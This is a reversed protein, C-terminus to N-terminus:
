LCFRQLCKTGIVKSDDKSTENVNLEAKSLKDDDEQEIACTSLGADSEHLIKNSTESEVSSNIDSSNNDDGSYTSDGNQKEAGSNTETLSDNNQGLKELTEKQGSQDDSALSNESLSQNSKSNKDKEDFDDNKNSESPNLSQNENEKKEDSADVDKNSDNNNKTRDILSADKDEFKETSINQTRVSTSSESETKDNLGEISANALSVSANLEKVPEDLPDDLKVLKNGDAEISGNKRDSFDDFSNQKSIKKKELNSNQNPESEPEAKDKEKNEQM